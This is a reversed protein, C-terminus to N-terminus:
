DCLAKLQELSREITVLFARLRHRDVGDREYLLDIIDNAASHIRDAADEIDREPQTTLARGM